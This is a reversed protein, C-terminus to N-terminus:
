QKIIKFISPKETDTTVHLIYVGNSLSQITLENGMTKLVSQGLSNFVETNKIISHSTLYIRDSSPNPYIIINNKIFDDTGAVIEQNVNVSYDEAQGYGVTNCSPAQTNFKKIVRMRTIGLPATSPVNITASVSINDTGTSNTLTGVPYTEGEDEFSNNRNWDIYATVPHNFDGNTNGKVIITYQQGLSVQGILSTFDEFAPVDSGSVESTPNNIGQFQVQTIPEVNGPFAVTCPSQNTIVIAIEDTIESNDLSIVKIVVTGNAFATLTGDQLSAFEAGSVIEWRAEQSLYSPLVSSVLQVTGQNTTIAAPVNGLTAVEVSEVVNSLDYDIKINPRQKYSSNNYNLVLDESIPVSSIPWAAIIYDSYGETWQWNIFGSFQNVDPTQYMVTSLEIANGTYTFPENFDFRIWGTISPLNYSPDDMVETYTEEIDALTTAASLPAQHTSNTILMRFRLDPYADGGSANTIKDFSVATIQAGAPVGLSEFENATYLMNSVAGNRASQGIYIIPGYITGFYPNANNGVGIQSELSSVSPKTFFDRVAWESYNADGCHARVKLIYLNEQELGDILLSVNQSTGSQIINEFGLMRLEWDFGSSPIEPSEWNIRAHKMGLSNVVVDGPSICEQAHMTMINLLLAAITSKGIFSAKKKFDLHYHLM